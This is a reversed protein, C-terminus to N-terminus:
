RRPRGDCYVASFTATEPPPLTASVRAAAAASTECPDPRAILVEVDLADIASFARSATDLGPGAAIIVISVSRTLTAAAPLAACQERLRDWDAMRRARGRLATTTLAAREFADHGASVVAETSPHARAAAIWARPRRSADRVLSRAADRGTSGTM